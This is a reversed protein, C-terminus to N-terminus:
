DGFSHPRTSELNGCQHPRTIDSNRFKPIRFTHTEATRSKQFNRGADISNVFWPTRPVYSRCNQFEPIVPNSNLVACKRCGPIRTIGSNQFGHTQAVLGRCKQVYAMSAIWFKTVSSNHSKSIRSNQFGPAGPEPLRESNRHCTDRCNTVFPSIACAAIASRKRM